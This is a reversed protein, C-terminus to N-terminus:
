ASLLNKKGRGGTITGADPLKPIIKSFRKRREMIKKKVHDPDLAPVLDPILLRAFRRFFEDVEHRQQDGSLFRKEGIERIDNSWMERLEQERDKRMQRAEGWLRVRQVVSLRSKKVYGLAYWLVVCLVSLTSLVLVANLNDRNSFFARLTTNM